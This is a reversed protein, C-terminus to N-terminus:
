CQYNHALGRIFFQTQITANVRSERNNKLFKKFLYIFFPEFFVYLINM